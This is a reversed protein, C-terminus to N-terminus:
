RKEIKVTGDGSHGSRRGTSPGRLERREGRKQKHQKHQQKQTPQQQSKQPSPKSSPLQPLPLPPWWGTKAPLVADVEDANNRLVLGKANPQSEHKTKASSHDNHLDGHHNHSNSHLPTTTLADRVRVAALSGGASEQVTEELVLRSSGSFAHEHISGSKSSSGSSRAATDKASGGNSSHGNSKKHGNSTASSPKTEATTYRYAIDTPVDVGYAM